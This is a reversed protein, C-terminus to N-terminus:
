WAGGAAVAGVTGAAMAAQQQAALQAAVAGSSAGTLMITGGGLGDVKRSWRERGTVADFATLRGGCAVVVASGEVSLTVISSSFWGGTPFDARWAERGDSPDIAVLTGKAAAYVFGTEAGQTMNDAKGVLPKQTAARRL